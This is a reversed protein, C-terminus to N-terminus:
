KGEKSCKQEKYSNCIIRKRWLNFTTWAKEADETESDYYWCYAKVFEDKTVDEIM